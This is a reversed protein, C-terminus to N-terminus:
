CKCESFTVPIMGWEMDGKAKVKNFITSVIAHRDTVQKIITQIRYIPFFSYTLSEITYILHLHEQLHLMTASLSSNPRFFMCKRLYRFLFDEMPTVEELSCVSRGMFGEGSMGARSHCPQDWKVPWGPCIFSQLDLRADPENFIETRGTPQGYSTSKIM